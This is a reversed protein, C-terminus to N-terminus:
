RAPQSRQGAAQEDKEANCEFCLLPAKHGHGDRVMNIVGGRGAGCKECKPFNASM